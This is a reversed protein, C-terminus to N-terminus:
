FYLARLLEHFILISYLEIYNQKKRYIGELYEVIRRFIANKEFFMWKQNEASFNELRYIFSGPLGPLEM